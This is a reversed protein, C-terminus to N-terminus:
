YAMCSKAENYTYELHEDIGMNDTFPISVRESGWYGEVENNSTNIFINPGGLAVTVVASKYDLAQTVTYEIDFSDCLYESATVEDGIEYSTGGAENPYEEINDETIDIGNTIDDAIAQCTITMQTLTDSMIDVKLKNTTYYLM